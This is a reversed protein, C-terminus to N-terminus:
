VRFICTFIMARYVPIRIEIILAEKHQVCLEIDEGDVGWLDRFFFRCSTLLLVNLSMALTTGPESKMLGSNLRTANKSGALPADCHIDIGRIKINVPKNLHATPM